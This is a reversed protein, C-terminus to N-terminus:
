MLEMKLTGIIQLVHPRIEAQEYFQEFDKLLYNLAKQHVEPTQNLTVVSGLLNIFDRTQKKSSSRDLGTKIIDLSDLLLKSEGLENSINVLQQILIFRDKDTSQQFQEFLLKYNALNIYRQAEAYDVSRVPVKSLVVITFQYKKQKFAAVGKKFPIKRIMWVAQPYFTSSTDVERFHVRAEEYKGETFAKKGSEYAENTPETTEGFWSCGTTGAAILIGIFFSLLKNNRGMIIILKSKKCHGRKAKKKGATARDVRYDTDVRRSDAFFCEM